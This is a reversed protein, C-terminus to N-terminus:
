KVWGVIVAFALVAAAGACFWLVIADAKHMKPAPEEIRTSTYPGFAEQLTRPYKRTQM